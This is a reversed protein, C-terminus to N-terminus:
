EVLLNLFLEEITTINKELVTSPIDVVNPCDDILSSTAIMEGVQAEYLVAALSNPGFNQTVYAYAEWFAHLTTINEVYWARIADKVTDETFDYNMSTENIEVESQYLEVLADLWWVTFNNPNTECFKKNLELLKRIWIAGEDEDSELAQIFTGSLGVYAEHITGEVLQVAQESQSITLITNLQGYLRAINNVGEETSENILDPNFRTAIRTDTVIIWRVIDNILSDDIAGLKWQEIIDYIGDIIEGRSDFLSSPFLKPDEERSEGEALVRLTNILNQLNENSM